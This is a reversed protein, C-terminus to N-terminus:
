QGLEIDSVQEGGSTAVAQEPSTVGFTDAGADGNQAKCASQNCHELLYLM